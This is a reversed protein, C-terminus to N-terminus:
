ADSLILPAITGESSYGGALIQHMWSLYLQTLCLGGGGERRAALRRGMALNARVGACRLLACPVQSRQIVLEQFQDFTLHHYGEEAVAECSRKVVSEPVFCTKALVKTYQFLSEVPVVGEDNSICKFVASSRDDDASLILTFEFFDVSGDREPDGDNLMHEVSSDLQFEQIAERHAPTTPRVALPMRCRCFFHLPLTDNGPPCGVM